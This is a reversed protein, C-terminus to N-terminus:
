KKMFNMKITKKQNIAELTIKNKPSIKKHTFKMKQSKTIVKIATVEKSRLSNTLSVTMIMMHTIKM